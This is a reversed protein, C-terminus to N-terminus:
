ICRTKISVEKNSSKYINELFSEREKSEIYYFM